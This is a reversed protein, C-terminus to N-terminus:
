VVCAPLRPSSVGRGKVRTMTIKCLPAQRVTRLSCRMMARHVTTRCAQTERKQRVHRLLRVHIQKQAGRRRLAAHAVKAAAARPLKKHVIRRHMRQKRRPPTVVAQNILSHIHAAQNQTKPSKALKVLARDPCTWHSPLAQHCTHMRLRLKPHRQSLSAPQRSNNPQFIGTYASM